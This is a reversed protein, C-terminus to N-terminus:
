SSGLPRSGGLPLQDNDNDNDNDNDSDDAIWTWEWGTDRRLLRVAGRAKAGLWRLEISSDDEREMEYCGRDWCAVSGRGGSVPGEHDLYALRHDPLPTAVIARGPCPASALRWTRLSGNAELMFDWHLCPHDHELVVFRPM